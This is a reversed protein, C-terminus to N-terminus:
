AARYAVVKSQISEATPGAAQFIVPAVLKGQAEAVQGFPVLVMGSLVGFVIALTLLMHKKM